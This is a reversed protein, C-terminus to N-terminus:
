KIIEGKLFARKGSPMKVRLWGEERTPFVNLKSGPIYWGVKEANVTPKARINHYQTFDFRAHKGVREVSERIGKFIAKEVSKERSMGKHVRAAVTTLQPTEEILHVTGDLKDNGFELIYGDEVPEILNAQLRSAELTQQTAVLMKRMPYLLSEKESKFLYLAGDVMGGGVASVAV